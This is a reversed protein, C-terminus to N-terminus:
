VAIVVASFNDTAGRAYINMVALNLRDAIESKSASLLSIENLSLHHYFGDSCLIFGTGPAAPGIGQHIHIWDGSGACQTLIHKQPHRDAESVSMTGSCVQLAVWTDDSTIQELQSGSKYIRSDGVHVYGYSNGYLFLASFTTGPSSGLRRGLGVVADNLYHVTEVLSLVVSRLTNEENDSILEPMIHQWWDECFGIAIEAAQRGGIQSGMGDAVVFLGFDGSACEGVRALICDQNEQKSLGIESIAMVKMESGVM